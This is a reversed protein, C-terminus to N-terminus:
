VGATCIVNFGHELMKYSGFEIQHQTNPFNFVMTKAHSVEGCLSFTIKLNVRDDDM